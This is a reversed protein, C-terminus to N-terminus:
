PLTIHDLISLNLLDSFWHQYALIDTDFILVAHVQRLKGLVRPVLPIPPLAYFLKGKWSLLFADMMSGPSLGGRSCLQYCRRNQQTAFLDVEPMGLIQFISKTADPRLGWEHDRSFSRSLHNVLCDQSRPLHSAKLYIDNHICFSWLNLAEQCFLVYKADRQKNLYFM